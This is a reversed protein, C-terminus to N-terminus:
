GLLRIALSQLLIAGLLGVALYAVLRAINMVLSAHRVLAGWRSVKEVPRVSDGRPPRGTWGFNRVCHVSPESSDDLYLWLFLM